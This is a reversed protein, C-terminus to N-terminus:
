TGKCALQSRTAQIKADNQTVTAEAQYLTSTECQNGAQHAHGAPQYSKAPAKPGPWLLHRNCNCDLFKKIACRPDM